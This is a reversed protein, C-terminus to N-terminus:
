RLIPNAPRLRGADEANAAGSPADDGREPLFEPELGVLFDDLAPIHGNLIVHDFEALSMIYPAIPGLYDREPGALVFPLGYQLVRRQLSRETAVIWHTAGLRKAAQYIAKVLTVFVDAHPRRGDPVAAVPVRSDGDARPSGPFWGDDRRRRYGRSISLRSVEVLRVAPDDICLADPFLTCYRFVPLGADSRVIIRATGALEGAGDVVGVHVSHRDFEDREVGDPYADAPLFKREVCYVQYRLRYSQALLEPSADITRAQFASTM